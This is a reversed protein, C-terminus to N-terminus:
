ATVSARWFDSGVYSSDLTSRRATTSSTLYFYCRLGTCDNFTKSHLMIMLDFHLSDLTYAGVTEAVPTFEHM